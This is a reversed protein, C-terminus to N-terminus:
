IDNGDEMLFGPFGICNQHMTVGKGGEKVVLTFVKGELMGGRWAGSYGVNGVKLVGMGHPLDGEFDGEYVCKSPSPLFSNLSSPIILAGQIKQGKKFTGKFVTKSPYTYTGEQLLSHTVLSFLIPPLNGFHM